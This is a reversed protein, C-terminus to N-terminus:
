RCISSMGTVIVGLFKIARVLLIINNDSEIMFREKAGKKLFFSISELDPRTRAL